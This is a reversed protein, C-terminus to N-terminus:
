EKSVYYLIAHHSVISANYVYAFAM